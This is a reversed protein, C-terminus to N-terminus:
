ESEFKQKLVTINNELTALKARISEALASGEEFKAIAAEMDFDDQEFWVVIEDLKALQQSLTPEHAKSM